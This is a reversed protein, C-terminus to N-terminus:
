KVKAEKLVPLWTISSKKINSVNETQYSILTTGENRSIARGWGHLKEVGKEKATWEYIMGDPRKEILSIDIEKGPMLKTLVKKLGPIDNIDIPPRHNTVIGFYETAEVNKPTGKPLYIIASGKENEVRNGVEWDKAVPPLHYEVNGITDASCTACISLYIFVFCFKKM